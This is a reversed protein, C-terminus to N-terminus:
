RVVKIQLPIDITPVTSAYFTITDASTVGRYVNAWDSQITAV